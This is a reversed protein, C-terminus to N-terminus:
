MNNVPRRRASVNELPIVLKPTQVVRRRTRPMESFRSLSFPFLPLRSSSPHHLLRPRGHCSPNHLNFRLPPCSRPHSHESSCGSPHGYDQSFCQQTYDSGEPRSFLLSERASSKWGLESQHRVSSKRSSRLQAHRLTTVHHGDRYRAEPRRAVISSVRKACRATNM